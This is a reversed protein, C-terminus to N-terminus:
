WKIRRIFNGSFSTQNYLEDLYIKNNDKQSLYNSFIYVVLILLIQSIFGYITLNVFITQWAEM